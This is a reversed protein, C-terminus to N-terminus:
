GHARPESWVCRFLASDDDRQQARELATAPDAGRALIQYLFAVSFAYAADGDPYGDAGVFWAAGAEIAADALPWAMCATCLLPSGQLQGFRKLESPGLRDNFPQRPRLEPALDAQILGREDGHGTIIVLSRPRDLALLSALDGPQGIWFLECSHDFCEVADRLLAAEGGDEVALIRVNGKPLVM